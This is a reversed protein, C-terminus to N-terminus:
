SAKLGASIIQRCQVSDSSTGLQISHVIRLIYVSDTWEDCIKAIDVKIDETSKSFVNLLDTVKSSCCLLHRSDPTLVTMPIDSEASSAPQGSM